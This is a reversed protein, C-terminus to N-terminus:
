EVTETNQASDSETLLEYWHFLENPNFIMENKTITRRVIMIKGTMEMPMDNTNQPV